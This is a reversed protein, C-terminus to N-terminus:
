RSQERCARRLRLFSLEGADADWLARHHRDFTELREPCWVGGVSFAFYVYRAVQGNAGSLRKLRLSRERGGPETFQVSTVRSAFAGAVATLRKSAGHARPSRAAIVIGRRPAPASCQASEALPEGARTFTGVQLCIGKRGIQPSAQAAWRQGARSGRRLVVAPGKSSAFAPPGFLACACLLACLLTWTIARRRDRRAKLTGM